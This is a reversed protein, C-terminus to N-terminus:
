DSHGDIGMKERLAASGNALVFSNVDEGLPLQIPIVEPIDQRVASLLEDSAATGTNPNEKDGDKMLYIFEYGDFLRRFLKRWTSVGQVGVAPVGVQQDMVM